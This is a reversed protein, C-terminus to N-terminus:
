QSQKSANLARELAAKLRSDAEGYAAWDQRQLAADRDQIAQKMQALATQVENAGVAGSLNGDADTPLPLIGQGGTQEGATGNALSAQTDGAVAGSDGGFLTDLAKDLTDEFAIKDGFAVLVKQLLPFGRGSSGKVYVPQVYLLGGGVPLTLLNGSVVQTEGQRLLNLVRSVTPDTNFSNQVQGPGPITNGKPLVLLHLRGYEPNIEGDKGTAANANAVLYGTLIDRAREGRQDPIYTSYLSFTPEADKGASLTLYYPPQANANSGTTAITQQNTASGTSSSGTTTTVATSTTSRTAVPDDPTRWADEGSYFAGSDTVHYKGLIERQMKFLDNPYRVHSLLDASMTERSQVTGPFVKQWAKLIPDEIDWAYLTVSGDYADVTAKVANRVYNVPQPKASQKPTDADLLLDNMDSLRSYPYQSSTVYGDIIWTIRGDVVSAYPRSDLTLYPAVKQVRVLPNRNYLIQSGDVVAESLLIEMDKFQLAYILKQLPGALVPGGNGSFTTLNQREGGLGAETQEDQSGAQLQVDNNIQANHQADDTDAPFDVEIPKERKGGVISYQPSNMGFYIRPEFVGLKGSTPIGSEIFVPEGGPSRQNGYAAVLGYGHTYVLRQNYWGIQQSVDVERPATVADEVRGNITYRDVSLSRAFTYYQKSQELQAFTPSVIEPDMLRINSTAVADNRLAGLEATTKADYREMQVDAIGYAERTADINRSVYPAELSKEDPNVRFQQVGWPYAGSLVLSSVLFLGLGILPFRWRGTITTYLFFCAIVVAIGALIQRGPIVAFVDAYGAGTVIGKPDLVTAYQDLWFSAAQTLLFLTLFIGLQIRVSKSLRFEREHFSIGGYILSTVATLILCVFTIFAALTVAGRFVPLSFLFFSLDFGFQADTKGVSESGMWMLIGQWYTSALGAPIAALAAAGVWTVMKRLPDIIERYREIQSTIRAYIPRRRYALEIALVFPIYSLLFVAAFIAAIALWQRILVSTYGLQDYWLVETYVTAFAIFGGILAALVLAFITLKLRSAKAAAGAPNETAM